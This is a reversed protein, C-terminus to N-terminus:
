LTFIKLISFKNKRESHLERQIEYVQESITENMLQSEKLKLKMHDNTRKLDHNIDIITHMMNEHSKFVSLLENSTNIFKQENCSREKSISQVLDLLSFCSDNFKKEEAYFHRYSEHQLEDTNQTTADNHSTSNLIDAPLAYINQEEDHQGELFERILAMDQLMNDRSDADVDNSDVERAIDYDVLENSDVEEDLDFDVLENSDVEEDLEFDELSFENFYGDDDCIAEPASSM